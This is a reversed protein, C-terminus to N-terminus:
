TTKSFFKAGPRFGFRQEAQVGCLRLIILGITIGTFVLNKTKDAANQKIAFCRITYSINCILFISQALLYWYGVIIQGAVTGVLAIYGVAEWFAHNKEM